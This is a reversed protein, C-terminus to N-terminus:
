TLERTAGRFVRFPKGGGGHEIFYSVVYVTVPPVTVGMVDNGM